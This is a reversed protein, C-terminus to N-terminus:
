RAGTAAALITPSANPLEGAAIGAAPPVCGTKPVLGIAAIKGRRSAAGSIMSKDSDCTARPLTMIAARSPLGIGNPQASSREPAGVVSALAASSPDISASPPALPAISASTTSSRTHASM